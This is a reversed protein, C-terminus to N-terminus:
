RWYKGYLLELRRRAEPPIADVPTLIAGQAASFCPCDSIGAVADVLAPILARARAGNAKMVEAVGQQSVTEHEENWSDYDTVMAVTAYCMEAERALRAEPLATMGILDAGWGRHLRSEARTSFAPGEMVLLTGRDHFRCGSARLVEALAERM